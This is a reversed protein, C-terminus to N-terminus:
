RSLKSGDIEKINTRLQISLKQCIMAITLDFLILSAKAWEELKLDNHLLQYLKTQLFNIGSYEIVEKYDKLIGETDPTPLYVGMLDSPCYIIGDNTPIVKCDFITEGTVWSQNQLFKYLEYFWDIDKQTIWGDDNLCEVIEEETLEKVGISKLRERYLASELESAVLKTKQLQSPLQGTGFLRRVEQSAFRAQDPKVWSGDETFIIEKERLEKLIKHVIPSFFPNRNAKEVPIFSYAKSRLEKDILMEQFGKLFVTPICDRLWKNWLRDEQIQERNSSLLFDANVLFDLGSILSKSTPLFAYVCIEPLSDSGIPFAVSIKRSTIGVRKEENLGNPIPIDVECLWYARKIGDTHLEVKPLFQDIRYVETVTTDEGCIQLAKLKDLFLITEPAIQRLENEVVLRKGQRFPLLICTQDFYKSIVEPIDAIWYPVIYGFGLEPDATDQFSFQYGASFIHPRSSVLFVSKFGIGKEGIYGERKSKTSDGIRCIARVNEELFGKENNIVLLAGDTGPTKAPDVQLIKFILQPDKESSYPNDEANQILELIFHVDKSYLDESLHEIARHLDEENEGGKVGSGIGKRKRIDKIISLQTSDVTM